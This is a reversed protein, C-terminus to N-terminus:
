DVALRATHTGKAPTATAFCDHLRVLSPSGTSLVAGRSCLRSAPRSGFASASSGIRTTCVARPAAALLSSQGARLCAPAPFGASTGCGRLARDRRIRQQSPLCAASIITRTDTDNVDSLLHARSVGHSDVLGSATVPTAISSSGISFDSVEESYVRYALPQPQDPKPLLSDLILTARRVLRHHNSPFTM